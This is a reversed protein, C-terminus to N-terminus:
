PWENSGVQAEPVRGDAGREEGSCADMRMVELQIKLGCRHRIDLKAKSHLHIGARTRV